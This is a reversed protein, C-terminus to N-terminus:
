LVHLSHEITQQFSTWLSLFVHETSFFLSITIIPAFFPFTEESKWYLLASKRSTGTYIFFTLLFNGLWLYQARAWPPKICSAFELRQKIRKKVVNLGKVWLLYVSGGSCCGTVSERSFLGNYHVVTARWRIIDMTDEYSTTHKHPRIGSYEM